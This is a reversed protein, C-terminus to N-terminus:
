DYIPRDGYKHKFKETTLVLILMYKHEWREPYYLVGADKFHQFSFNSFMSNKITKLYLLSFLFKLMYVCVPVSCSIVEMLLMNSM